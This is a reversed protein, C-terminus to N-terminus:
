LVVTTGVGGTKPDSHRSETTTVYPGGQPPGPRKWLSEVGDAGEGQSPLPQSVSRPPGRTLNPASDPLATVILPRTPRPIAADISTAATMPGTAVRGAVAAAVRTVIASMFNM